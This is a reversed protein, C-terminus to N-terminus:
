IPIERTNGLRAAQFRTLRGARIRANLQRLGRQASKEFAERQQPVTETLAREMYKRGRLIGIRTRTNGKRVDGPIAGREVIHAYWAVEDGARVSARAGPIKVGAFRYNAAERKARISRRLAGTRVPVNRKAQRAVVRAAGALGQGVVQAAIGPPLADFASILRDWNRTDLEADVFNVM